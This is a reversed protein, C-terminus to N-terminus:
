KGLISNIKASADEIITIVKDLEPHRSRGVATAVAKQFNMPSLWPKCLVDSAGLEMAKAIGGEPLEATMVIIPVKRWPFKARLPVLTEWGKSDPLNLDAIVLDFDSAAALAERRTPAISYEHDNPKFFHKVVIASISEDDEVLLIRM